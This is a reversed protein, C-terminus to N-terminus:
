NMILKGFKLPVQFDAKGTPSFASNEGGKEHVSHRCVNFYWPFRASPKSGSVFLMPQIEEQAPPVIPIRVEMSWSDGDVHTAVEANSTWSTDLGKQRDADLLGGGPSIVLQYYSHSQTELLIEVNEGDLIAMDDHRTATNALATKSADKCEIGVYLNDDAYAVKFSTRHYATRGTEVEKLAYYELRNGWTGPGKWFVDDLKGDMKIDKANREFGCAEPVDDRVISLQKQINKMQRMNDAILAIRGAYVSGPEVKAQAKELLAFVQGIKNANKELVDYMNAEGYDVFAKMEAAAPGYFLTYYEDLLKDVDQGSDWWFQATVYLNLCSVVLDNGLTKSGGGSYAELFDGRSIGKLSRLDAAITHPFFRPPMFPQNWGTIYYDYVLLPAHRQPMKKLWEQRIGLMQAKKKPNVYDNLESSRTQALMVVINPSLQAIKTPPLRCGGYASCSIMKDPHTKYVEKAVRNVYDWVYDSMFGEPGREPTAKVKCSECQCTSDVGDPMMVTVTSEGYNDFLARIYKVNSDLLGPSSLCPLPDFRGGREFVRTGDARKAFYEPHAQKMEDRGIVQGIGHILGVWTSTGMVDPANNFGMRLQWLTQETDGCFPKFYQEPARLAFDPRVTKDLQPIPLSANKPIIEGFEGPMYWRVGLERLYAYVANLSGREDKNWLNLKKNYGRWMDIYYPSGWKEGDPKVGRQRAHEELDADWKKLYDGLSGSIGPQFYPMTPTYDSDHGLLVLWNNGSVMKFAGYKLGEDTIKLNDTEASRGVYIHAAANVGPSTVIELKAGSIKELYTQLESAALKVMRPPKEAIVIDACPKGNEMLRAEGGNFLACGSLMLALVVFVAFCSLIKENRM